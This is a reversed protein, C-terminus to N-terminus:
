MREEEDPHPPSGADVVTRVASTDCLSKLAVVSLYTRKWYGHHM